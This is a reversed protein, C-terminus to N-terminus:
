QQFLCGGPVAGTLKNYLFGMFSLSSMRTLTAPIMGSLDNYSNNLNKLKTLKALNSPISGVLSNHSLDLPKTAHVLKGARAVHCGVSQQQELEPETFERLKSVRKTCDM